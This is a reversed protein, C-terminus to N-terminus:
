IGTSSSSSLKQVTKQTAKLSRASKNLKSRACRRAFHTAFPTANTPSSRLSDCSPQKHKGHANRVDVRAFVGTSMINNKRNGDEDKVKHHSELHTNLILAEEGDAIKVIAFVFDYGMSTYSFHLTGGKVFNADSRLIIGNTCGRTHQNLTLSSAFTGEYCNYDDNIHPYLAQQLQRSLEQTCVVLPKNNDIIKGVAEMRCDVEDQRRCGKIASLNYTLTTIKHDANNSKSSAQSSIQSDSNHDLPTVTTTPPPDVLEGQRHLPTILSGPNSQLFKKLFNNEQQENTPNAIQAITEDQSPPLEHLTTNIEDDTDLEPKLASSEKADNDTHDQRAWHTKPLKFLEIKIHDALPAPDTIPDSEIDIDSPYDNEEDDSCSSQSRGKRKM